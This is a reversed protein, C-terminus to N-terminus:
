RSLRPPMLRYMGICVYPIDATWGRNPAEVTCQRNLINEAVSWRHNAQTTARGRKVTKARLGDPRM